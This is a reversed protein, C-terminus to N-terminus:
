GPQTVLAPGLESIQAAGLLMMVREIDARFLDLVFDV